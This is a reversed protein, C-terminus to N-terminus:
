EEEELWENNCFEQSGCVACSDGRKAYVPFDETGLVIYFQKAAWRAGLEFESLTGENNQSNGLRKTYQLKKLEEALREEFYEM